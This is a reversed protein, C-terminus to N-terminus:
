KMSFIFSHGQFLPQKFYGAQIEKMEVLLHTGKLVKREQRHRGM